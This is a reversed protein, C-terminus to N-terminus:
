CNKIIIFTEYPYLDLTIDFITNGGKHNIDVEIKYNNRIQTPMLFGEITLQFLSIQDLMIGCFYECLEPAKDDFYDQLTITAFNTTSFNKSYPLVNPLTSFRSRNKIKCLIANKNRSIMEDNIESLAMEILTHLTSAYDQTSSNKERITMISFRREIATSYKTIYNTLQSAQSCNDLLCANAFADVISKNLKYSKSVFGNKENWKDQPRIPKSNM